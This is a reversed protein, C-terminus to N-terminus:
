KLLLRKFAPDGMIGQGSVNDKSKGQAVARIENYVVGFVYPTDDYEDMGEALSRYMVNSKSCPHTEKYLDVYEQIFKKKDNQTLNKWDRFEELRNTGTSFSRMKRINARIIIPLVVPLTLM